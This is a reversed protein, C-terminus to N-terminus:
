RGFLRRKSARDRAQAGTSPEASAEEPTLFDVVVRLQKNFESRPESIATPRGTDISEDIRADYPLHALIERRVSKEIEERPFGVKAHTQNLVVAIRDREIGLSQLLKLTVKTDKVSTINFSSVVLIQDAVEIVELVREEIHAPSDVIIYDYGRSLERLIARISAATVLDAFEPSAPALLIRVDEPGTAMVEDLYDRDVQEGQQALSEISTPHSEVHLLVGVDGYQLNLDILAVKAGRQSLAVALNTALVSKGVGGKGSFVLVTDAKTRGPRRVRKRPQELLPEEEPEPEPEAVADIAPEAVAAFDPTLVTAQAPEASAPEPSRRPVDADAAPTDPAAAESAEPLPAAAEPEVLASEVAQDPAEAAPRKARGRLLTPSPAPPAPLDPQEAEETESAIRLWSPPWDSAVKAAPAPTEAAAPEGPAGPEASPEPQAGASEEGEEWFWRSPESSSSWARSHAPPATQSRLRGAALMIAARLEGASADLRVVADAAGPPLTDRSSALVVLKTTPASATLQAAADAPDIGLNESLVVVEPKLIGVQDAVVAASSVVGCVDLEDAYEAVREHIGAIEEFPAAVVVRIARGAQQQDM